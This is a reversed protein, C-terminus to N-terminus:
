QGAPRPSLKGLIRQFVGHLVWAAAVSSLMVASGRLLSSGFRDQYLYIFFGHIGYIEFSIDGLFLLLPNKVTIKMLVLYVTLLFFCMAGWFLPVIIRDGATILAGALLGLFAGASGALAPWYRKELRTRLIGEYEAWFIGAPFAIVANYWHPAYGRFLCWFVWLVAFVLNAGLKWRFRRAFLQQCLAFCLYWALLCHIYWSNAVISRGSVLRVLIRALSDGNGQWSSQAWYLLTLFLYPVLISPIRRTLIRGGYGAKSRASKELGYGSLFFFLSVCLIGCLDYVIYLPSETESIFLHHMVVLLSLMGRLARTKTLSLGDDYFGSRCWDMKWCAILILPLTLLEM